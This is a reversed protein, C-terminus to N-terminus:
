EDPSSPTPSTDDFTTEKSKIQSNFHVKKKNSDDEAFIEENKRLMANKEEIRVRYEKLLLNIGHQLNTMILKDMLKFLEAEVKQASLVQSNM